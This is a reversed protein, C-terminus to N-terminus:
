DDPLSQHYPQSKKVPGQSAPPRRISRCTVQCIVYLVFLTLFSSSWINMWFSKLNKLLSEFYFDSYKCYMYIFIFEPWKSQCKFNFTLTDSTEFQKLSFLKDRWGSMMLTMRPWIRNGERTDIVIVRRIIHSRMYTSSSPYGKGVFPRTIRLHLFPMETACCWNSRSIVAGSMAEKSSFVEGFSVSTSIPCNTRTMFRM